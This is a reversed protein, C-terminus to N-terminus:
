KNDGVMRRIIRMLKKNTSEDQINVQPYYNSSHKQVIGHRMFFEFIKLSSFYKANNTVISLPCRFKTIIREELFDIVVDDIARKTPISEV